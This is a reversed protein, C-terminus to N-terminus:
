SGAWAQAFAEQEYGYRGGQRTNGVPELESYVGLVGLGLACCFVVGGGKRSVVGGGLVVIVVVV